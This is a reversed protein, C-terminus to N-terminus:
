YLDGIRFSRDDDDWGRNEAGRHGDGYPYGSVVSDAQEPGNDADSLYSATSALESLQRRASKVKPNDDETKGMVPYVASELLGAALQLTLTRVREPM